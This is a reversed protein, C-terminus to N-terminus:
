THLVRRRLYEGPVLGSAFWEAAVEIGIFRYHWPEFAYGTIKETGQPYSMVFGYERAYRMLWQGPGTDIFEATWD